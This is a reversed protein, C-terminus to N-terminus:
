KVKDKSLESIFDEILKVPVAGSQQAKLEGTPSYVLFSPTGVLSKGTQLEYFHNVVIPAAILNPFTVNHKKIFALAKEKFEWGDTSIGLVTADNNKHLEHFTVYKEVENNCVHCDSAWIMIVLWKGKGTYEDLKHDKGSFDRLLINQNYKLYSSKGSKTIDVSWSNGSILLTTMLLLTFIIPQQLKM